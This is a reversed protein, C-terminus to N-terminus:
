HWFWDLNTVNFTTGNYKTFTYSNLRRVYIKRLGIDQLMRYNDALKREVSDSLLRFKTLQNFSIAVPTSFIIWTVVESCPPTTLSGKYVYFEDTNDPLLSALTIPTGLKTEENLWKVKGLLNLIPQLLMNDKDQFFVGLVVLSDKHYLADSLNSYAKNRHVIHMEMPYRIDNLIHESGRNNKAGWHFHLHDVKFEENEPLTAGFVYPLRKSRTGNNISMVVSHGNNKLQLMDQLYDHYGIMELAPLPVALSRSSLISIPSQLQGGCSKFKKFWVHQDKRSYGFHGEVLSITMLSSIITIINM